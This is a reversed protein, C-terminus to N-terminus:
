SWTSLALPGSASAPKDAKCEKGAWLCSDRNLSVLKEGVMNTKWARPVHLLSQYLSGNLLQFLLTGM